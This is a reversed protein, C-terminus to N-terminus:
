RDVLHIFVDQISAMNYKKKIEAPSDMEVIRGKYMISLRHCYEAEDMYHTTVFVTTGAAALTSILDWFYRRAIPDVGGTPEDLFLIPPKHLIACALALRQKFGLPLSVTKFNEMKSINLAIDLEEIRNKIQARSLGYIGGFFFLNEEVKLDDYLSFRQSMYGIGTKIKEYERNVDWGGVTGIGSSPKLLGTLMKITTTKGAGNAGLFGFIEGQGVDFSINDVATFDGFRRTLNRVSVAFNRSPSSNDAPNM